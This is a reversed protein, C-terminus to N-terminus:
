AEPIFQPQRKELFAAMGEMKNQTDFLEYFLL